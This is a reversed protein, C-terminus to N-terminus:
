FARLLSTTVYLLIYDITNVLWVLNCTVGACRPIDGVSIFFWPLQVVTHVKNNRIVSFKKFPGTWRKIQVFGNIMKLFIIVCTNISYSHASPMATGVSRPRRRPHASQGPDAGTAHSSETV